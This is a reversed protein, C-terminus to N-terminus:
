AVLHIYTNSEHQERGQWRKIVVWTLVFSAVSSAALAALGRSFPVASMDTAASQLTALQKDIVTSLAAEVDGGVFPSEGSYPKGDPGTIIKDFNWGINAPSVHKLLYDYVGDNAPCCETSDPTCCESGSCSCKVDNLSSKALMVVNGKSLDVSKEAFTKIAANSGPEQAGFQNCPVLVFKVPKDAYKTQLKTMM